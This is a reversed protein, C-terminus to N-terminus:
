GNEVEGQEAANDAASGAGSNEQGNTAVPKQAPVSEPAPTKIAPKRYLTAYDSNNEEREVSRIYTTLDSEITEALVRITTTQSNVLLNQNIDKNLQKVLTLITYIDKM